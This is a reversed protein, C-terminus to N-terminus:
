LAYSLSQDSQISGWGSFFFALAQWSATNPEDQIM